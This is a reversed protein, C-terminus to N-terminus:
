GSGQASPDASAAGTPANPDVAPVGQAQQLATVASSLQEVVKVIDEFDSVAKEIAPLLAEVRQGLAEMAEIREILSGIGGPVASPRPADLMADAPVEVEGSRAKAAASKLGAAGGPFIARMDSMFKQVKKIESDLDM